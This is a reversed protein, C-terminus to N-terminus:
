SKGIGNLLRTVKVERLRRIEHTVAGLNSVCLTLGTGTYETLRGNWEKPKGPPEAPLSDVQLAPSRLKIRPNPLDVLSPFM